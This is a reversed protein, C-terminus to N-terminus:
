SLGCANRGDPALVTLGLAHAALPACAPSRVLSILVLAALSPALPGCAAVVTTRTAGLRSHLVSPRLGDLVLARPVGLLAVTHALEHVVVGGGVALAVTWMGALIAFPLTLLVLVAGAPLLGRLVRAPSRADLRRLPVRAVVGFRAAALRRRLSEARSVRVNVLLSRNLQTCFARADRLGDSAGARTLVDGLEAVTAGNAHALVLQASENTHISARRVVDVVGGDALVVGPALEVRDGPEIM